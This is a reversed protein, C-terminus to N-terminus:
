EFEYVRLVSAGWTLRIYDLEDTLNGRERSISYDIFVREFAGVAETLTDFARKNETGSKYRYTVYYQEDM